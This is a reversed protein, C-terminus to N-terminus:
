KYINLDKPLESTLFELHLIRRPSPQDASNSSHLILPKMLLLDGANAECTTSGVKETVKNIQDRNLVGKNHSGPIIKLAGNEESADDIHLRASIMNELIKVPPKVHPIGDKISWPGYDDIEVKEKVCITTDQHWLVAWNKEPNKNFLISRALQCNPYLQKIFTHIKEAYIKLEPLKELCFRINNSDTSIAKQLDTVQNDFSPIMKFGFVSLEKNNEDTFKKM